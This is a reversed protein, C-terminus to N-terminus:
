STKWNLIVWRCVATIVYTRFQWIDVFDGNIVLIEPKISKLYKNLEKAKCGLFGLHVDSIVAVKVARKSM